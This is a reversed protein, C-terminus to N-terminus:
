WVRRAKDDLYVDASIKRCDGGWAKIREPLNANVADFHLGHIACYAIAVRLPQGERCTNLIIKWGRRQMRKIKNIMWMKPRVINPYKSVVLTGDFDVAVCKPLKNLKDV